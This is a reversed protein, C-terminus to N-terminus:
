SGGGGEGKVVVMGRGGGGGVMGELWGRGGEGGDRKVVVKGKWRGREGGGNVELRGWGVVM